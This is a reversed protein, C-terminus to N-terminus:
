AFRVLAINREAMLERGLRLPIEHRGPIAQLREESIFLLRKEPQLEAGVPEPAFGEDLLRAADDSDIAYAAAAEALVRRLRFWVGKPM